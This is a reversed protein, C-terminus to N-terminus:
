PKPLKTPKPTEVPDDDGYSPLGTPDPPETPNGPDPIDTPDGPGPTPTDPRPTHTPPKRTNDPKDTPTPGDDDTPPVPTDTPSIPTDTPERPETQGISTATSSPLPLITQGTTTSTPTLSVTPTPTTSTSTATATLLQTPTSTPLPTDLVQVGPTPTSTPLSGIVQELIENISTSYSQTVQAAALLTVQAEPPANVAMVTLMVIQDEVVEELSSTLLLTAAPHTSAMQNLEGVVEEVQANFRAITQPIYEYREELVLQQIEATRREAYRIELRIHGIETSPLTLRAEEIALKTTYLPDGPISRNSAEVFIVGTSL